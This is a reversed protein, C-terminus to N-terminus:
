AKPVYACVPRLAAALCELFPGLSRASHSMTCGWIHTLGLIRKPNAFTGNECDLLNGIKAPPPADRRYVIRAGSFGVEGCFRNRSHVWSGGSPTLEYVTGGGGSGGSATTGYLNGADDFILGGIPDYGASGGQFSYLINETWGHRPGGQYIDNEFVQVLLERHQIGVDKM